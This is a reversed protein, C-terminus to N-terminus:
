TQSRDAERRPAPQVYIACSPAHDGDYADCNCGKSTPGLCTACKREGDKQPVLDATPHEIGCAAIFYPNVRAPYLWLHSVKGHQGKIRGWDGVEVASAVQEKDRKHEGCWMGGENDEWRARRVRKHREWCRGCTGFTAPTMAASAM